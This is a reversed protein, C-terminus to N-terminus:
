RVQDPRYQIQMTKNRALLCNGTFPGEIPKGIVKKALLDECLAICDGTLREPMSLMVLSDAYGIHGNYNRDYYPELSQIKRATELLDSITSEKNGALLTNQNCADGSFILRTKKDLFSVGGQTHGPTHIVEIDRDGLAIVDDLPLLATEYSGTVLDDPGLDYLGYSQAMMMALYDLREARSISKAMAMDAPHIYVEPFQSIGGAHDVHGHTLAVVVPKSTLMALTEPINFMGTGTDILLSKEKGELLFMADMGFENICWTRYAIETIVVNQIGM